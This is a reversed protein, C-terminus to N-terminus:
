NFILIALLLCIVGGAVGILFGLAASDKKHEREDDM